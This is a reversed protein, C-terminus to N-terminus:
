EAGGDEITWDKDNVLTNRANVASSNFKIGNAGLRVSEQLNVLQSWAILALSYNQTSLGSNDFMRTMDTVSSINWQSIDQNFMAASNFMENMSTVSSVDWESLDVNFDDVQRFVGAMNTITSVDWNNIKINSANAYNFLGEISTVSSLDWNSLDKDSMNAGAFLFAISTSDSFDPADAATVTVDSTDILSEGLKVTGWHSIELLKFRDTGKNSIFGNIQGSITITYQGIQAYTHTLEQQDWATITNTAGDGWDVLFDYSGNQDLSIKIQNTDSVGPNDTKWVSVFNGNQKTTISFTGWSEGVNLRSLNTTSFEQSARARVRVEQGNNIFGAQDTWEGRDIQYEGNEISIPTSDGIEDITMLESQLRSNPVAGSLSTFNLRGQTTVEFSGEVDSITLIAITKTELEASSTQRIVVSQGNDVQGVEGTFSGGDISYEGGTISIPVATGLGSITISNSEVQTNRAIEQQSTFLFADPTTDAVTTVQFVESETGITLTLETQTVYESSSILRVAVTDGSQVSGATNVFDAGSISYEGGVISVPTTSNVGAVTILNSEISTSLGVNTQPEFSFADPTLDEALTTVRFTGSVGGVTVSADVSTSFSDSSTIRLAITQGNNITGASSTFSGGNISFEGGTISVTVSDDIGSITVPDSEIVTSLEVDAVEAFSFSNPTLDPPPASSGGGCAIITLSLFLFASLSSFARSLSTM